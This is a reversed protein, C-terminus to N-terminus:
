RGAGWANRCAMLAEVFAVILRSKQRDAPLLLLTRAHLAPEFPKLSVGAAELGEVTYPNVLGLGLGQAVLAGVTLSAPTEVVIRPRAGIRLLEEQLARRVTDEPALAVFPEGDLDAAEIVERTTLRHGAPVACLMRPTCFVQHVVGSTDIEDAALGIDFQASAVLDRVTSSGHIQLTVSVGAHGAVFRGIAQPVLTTGLASLSAVRLDGSGFDRIRAASARLRELGTFAEEVDRFFLRGEPTPVLRSRVRDFLRLGVSRELEAVARSVAPQTVGLIEAARSATGTIMVARFAEIQKLNM